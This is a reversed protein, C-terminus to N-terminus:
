LIEEMIFHFQGNRFTKTIFQRHGMMTECIYRYENQVAQRRRSKASLLKYVLKFFIRVIFRKRSILEGLLSLSWDEGVYFCRIPHPEQAVQEATENPLEM